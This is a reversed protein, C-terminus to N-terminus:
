EYYFEIESFDNYDNDNCHIKLNKYDELDVMNYEMKEIIMKENIKFFLYKKIYLEKLKKLKKLWQKFFKKNEIEYELVFYTDLNHPNENLEFHKKNDFILKKDHSCLLYNCDDKYNQYYCGLIYIKM